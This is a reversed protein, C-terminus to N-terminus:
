RAHKSFSFRDFGLEELRLSVRSVDGVMASDLFDHFEVTIQVCRHLVEDSTSDFMALEAREIGAKM